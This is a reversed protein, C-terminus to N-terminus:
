LRSEVWIVAVDGAADAPMTSTVTVVGTPVLAVEAASRNVYSVRGDTVAILGTAPGGVPAVVTVTVPPLRVPAVATM